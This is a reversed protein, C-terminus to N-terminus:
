NRFWASQMMRAAEKGDYNEVILASVVVAASGASFGQLSRAIVFTSHDITLAILISAVIFLVSGMLAVRFRGIADSLPGGFFQGLTSGLLFSVLTYQVLQIDVALYTAITPFAPLYTDMALPGMSVLGGFAIFIYKYHALPSNRNM